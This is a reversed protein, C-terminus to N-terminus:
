RKKVEERIFNELEQKIQLERIFNELQLEMKAFEPTLTNFYKLAEKLEQELQEFEEKYTDLEM